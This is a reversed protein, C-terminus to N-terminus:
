TVDAHQRRTVLDAIASVSTLQEMDEPSLSIDFEQEFELALVLHRLSTWEVLTDPSSEPTVADLPVSLVTAVISRVRDPTSLAESM